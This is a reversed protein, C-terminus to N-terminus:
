DPVIKSCFSEIWLFVDHDTLVVRFVQAGSGKFRYVRRLEALHGLSLSAPGEM